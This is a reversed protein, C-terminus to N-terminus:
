SLANSLHYSLLLLLPSMGSADGGDITRGDSRNYGREVDGYNRNSAFQSLSDDQDGGLSPRGVSQRRKAKSQMSEPPSGPSEADRYDRSASGYARQPSEPSSPARRDQYNAPPLPSRSPRRPPALPFPYSRGSDDLPPRVRPPSNPSRARFNNGPTPPFDHQPEPTNAFSSDGPANSRYSSGQLAFPSPSRPNGMPSPTFLDRSSNDKRVDVGAGGLLEDRASLPNRGFQNRSDARLENKSDSSGFRPLNGGAEWEKERSGKGDSRTLGNEEVLRVPKGGVTPGGTKAANEKWWQSEAKKSRRRKICWVLLVIFIILGVGGGAAIVAILTTGTLLPKSTAQTATSDIPTVAASQTAGNYGSTIVTAPM